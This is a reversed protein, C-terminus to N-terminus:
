REYNSRYHDWDGKALGAFALVARDCLELCVRRFTGTTTFYWPAKDITSVSFWKSWGEDQITRAFRQREERDWEYGNHIMQNRYRFVADLVRPFDPIMFRVLGSAELIDTIRRVIKDGNKTPKAPDWFSPIADRYRQFRAHDEQYAEKFRPELAPLCQMFLSELFAAITTIFALNEALDAFGFERFTSEIPDLDWSGTMDEDIALDIQHNYGATWESLCQVLSHVAHLQAGHDSFEGIPKTIKM